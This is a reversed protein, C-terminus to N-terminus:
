KTKASLVQELAEVAQDIEERSVILPPVIRIVTPGAIMTIIKHEDQLKQIYPQSKKKLEVAIMLGLGRVERILPSQLKRLREMFYAGNAAAREM